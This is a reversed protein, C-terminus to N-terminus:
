QYELAGGAVEFLCRPDLDHEEFFTSAIVLWSSTHNKAIKGLVARKITKLKLLSTTFIQHVYGFAIVCHASAILILTIYFLIELLAFKNEEM